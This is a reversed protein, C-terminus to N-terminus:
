GFLCELKKPKFLEKIDEWKVGGYGGYGFLKAKLMFIELRAKFKVKIEIKKM